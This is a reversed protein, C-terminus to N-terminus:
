LHQHMAVMLFGGPGNSTMNRARMEQPQQLSATSGTLSSSPWPSSSSSGSSSSRPRTRPESPGAWRCTAGRQTCQQESPRCLVALARGKQIDLDRHASMRSGLIAQAAEVPAAAGSKLILERARAHKCTDLTLLCIQASMFTQNFAHARSSPTGPLVAARDARGSAHGPRQVDPQAAGAGSAHERHQAREAHM